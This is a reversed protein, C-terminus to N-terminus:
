VCPSQLRKRIFDYFAAEDGGFATRIDTVVLDLPWNIRGSIKGFDKETTITVEAAARRASQLIGALDRDTYHHHDPFGSFGVLQCGMETLSDRFNRNDALGSFAFVRLQKLGDPGLVPPATQGVTEKSGVVRAIRSLHCSRFVSRSPIMERVTEVTETKEKPCRTLIVADCRLLADAPERLTGRPLLHANGFPCRDDLLVLDIDRKLQIHQFADDLVVVDVGFAQIAAMGSAFRDRGVLVPIGDLSEALLYPEDGATEPTMRIRQGDSVIGGKKEAGGKYGRSIVAVKYGLQQVLRTVYIAMPTKGTGGVTINGISVVRCPLKKTKLLHRRYLIQRGKLAATYFCSLLYLLLNFLNFRSSDDTMASQVKNTLYNM